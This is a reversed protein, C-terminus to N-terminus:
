HETRGADPLQARVIEALKDVDKVIADIAERGEEGLTPRM